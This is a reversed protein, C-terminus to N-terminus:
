VKTKKCAATIIVQYHPDHSNLTAENLEYRGMGYLFATAALVNGHTNIVTEGAFNEKLLRKLSADTFSWYWYKGWQDQAIHSIGPVTLLLSGGPKLVRYCTKIADQYNYILHLTQTLIICDFSNDPLIPANSLDGVFTARPNSDDIHLIDSQVINAQGFTLTYENDGIELVRGRVSNSNAALFKEIYFRDVPGGREYGFQTSFPITRNLDGLNVHYVPPLNIHYSRSSVASKLKTKMAQWGKKILLRYLLSKNHEYLMELSAKQELLKKFPLKELILATELTYYNKWNQIGKLKYDGNANVDDDTFRSLVKLASNLMFPHNFSMNDGHHVYAAIIQQHHIVPYKKAIRLYMDYDECSKLGTDFKFEQLVWKQYMVTAHMGIYNGQLLQQYPKQELKFSVTVSTGNTINIKQHAGSVFAVTDEDSLYGANISLANDYLWDDADLFVLHEGAAVEIGKNRAASLGQNEQYIYKITPYNEVVSRSNDTSGDDVVIAEYNTYTQSLVSDIAKPLYKGHNYNTIVVSVLPQVVEFNSPQTM